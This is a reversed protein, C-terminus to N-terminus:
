QNLQRIPKYPGYKNFGSRYGPKKTFESGFRCEHKQHDSISFIETSFLCELKTYGFIAICRM